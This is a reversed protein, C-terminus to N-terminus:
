DASDDPDEDGVVLEKDTPKWPGPGFRRARGADREGQTDLADLAELDNDEGEGYPWYGPPAQELPTDSPWVEAVGDLVSLLRAAMKQARFAQHTSMKTNLVSTLEDRIRDIPMPVGADALESIAQTKRILESPTHAKALAQHSLAIRVSPHM